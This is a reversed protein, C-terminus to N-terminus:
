RLHLVDLIGGELLPMTKGCHDCQWGTPTVAFGQQGCNPCCLRQEPPQAGIFDSKGAKLGWVLDYDTHWSQFNSGIIGNEELHVRMQEEDWLRGPMYTNIRRTTLLLGGPRLPRIIEALAAEPDPMFELAEMCTVLDFSNEPFPLEAGNGWLLTVYDSFHEEALKASAQSLMKRSYDLAIIQGEFRAHQCLALPIRGTGTAIDLVMPDTHPALQTLLPQALFLHEEVDDYQKINDYRSAYVDYLWIVMRRGLYVGETDILLWWAAFGVIFVLILISVLPTM